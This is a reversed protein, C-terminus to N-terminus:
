KWGPQLRNAPMPTLTGARELTQGAARLRQAAHQVPEGDPLIWDPRIEALPALVFARQHMRPHPLTLAADQLTQEGFLLLDLDLTRPANHRGAPRLRGHRREICQLRQLLQGPTLACRLVAVANWYDPGKADVPASRYLSSNQLLQCGALDQLEGLATALTAAGDGLNAGLGILAMDPALIPALSSAAPM